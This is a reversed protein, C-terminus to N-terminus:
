WIEAESNKYLQEGQAAVSNTPRLLHYLVNDSIPPLQAIDGFLIISIGGFVERAHCCRDILGYLKQRIV